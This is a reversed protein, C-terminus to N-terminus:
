WACNWPATSFAAQAHGGRRWGPREALHRAPRTM